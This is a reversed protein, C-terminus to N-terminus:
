FGLNGVAVNVGFKTDLAKFRAQEVGNVDFIKVIARNKSGPGAGAVIEAVGDGDLDGGAVNAGYGNVMHARFDSISVGDKDFVNIEDRARRHPGSGTIVEEYSDGNVDGSAVSVSYGYRSSDTYEQSLMVSWQGIGLSTDVEWIKIIGVNTEGSGPVTIIEDIGDGDVDGTAVKAGYGTDYALLNIGSDVLIQGAHDYVFVRVEAPNVSGAGAGAVVEYYGDGNFDGSAVNAGYNYQSATINLNALPNGNRDFINVEAPNESGPGPAAIIEDVGDNNIDGTAVNVGYEYGHAIFEVGTATGDSNLVRVLGTIGSGHGAGVIISKNNQQGGVDSKYAGNFSIAGDAELVENQSSPTTYGQVDGFIIVYTGTLADAETWATGSGSFSEPGNITFTAEALNTTVNIAGTIEVINLTVPIVAPSSLADATVTISGTYSGAGMSSVNVSVGITDPGSGAGKDILLWSRNSLATWNLIGGGSNQISLSQSSPNSGNQSTFELSLPTVSLVPSPLVTLGVNVVEMAGSEASINVSGNYAGVSLGALNIEVSIDSVASPGTSGSASSLIIWSENAGATWNLTGSGNNTIEVNQSAPANGGEKGTFSLTLPSIEMQIYPSIGYIDVREGILSAIFIRNSEGIAIGLPTRLPNYLSYVTGLFAGSSEFVHVINQLADTVYVRSEGDVAAGQPRAMLGEGVGYEGFSRKFVGSMDFVQIRAGEVEGGYMDQTIQRDLVILEGLTRDITVSAPKNFEGNGSGSGGFSFKPTGDPNYVKIKDEGKDSVYINGDSDIAIGSPKTFEGDDNGLKRLLNLDIDYVEVNGSGENGIYIMGAGDVAVSIPSSLGTLTELYGGSQTYILLRNNSSETVYINEYNDVAVATPARLSTTVPQLRDYDPMDAAQTSDTLCPLSFFTIVFLLILSFEAPTTKHKM